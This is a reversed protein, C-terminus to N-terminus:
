MVSIGTPDIVKPPLRRGEWGIQLMRCGECRRLESQCQTALCKVRQGQLMFTIRELKQSSRGKILICDGEGLDQPLLKLVNPLQDGVRLLCDSSKGVLKFGARYDRHHMGVIIAQDFIEAIRKGIRKYEAKVDSRLDSISGLILIKRSFNQGEFFDFAADITELTSKFEDSVVVAGSALRIPNLRLPSPSLRAMRSIVEKMDMSLAAAVACSALVCHIQHRGVLATDVLYESEKISLTFSCGKLGELVLNSAKIMASDSFGYSWKQASSESAAKAVWSNDANFVLIDNAGQVKLMESKERCIAAKNPFMLMHESHVSTFIVLNPQIAKAYRRMQGGAGIAVELVVFRRWPPTMLIHFAVSSFANGLQKYTSPQSLGLAAAICRMTTTKGLSGVVVVITTRRLFLSRYLQAIKLLLPYTVASVWEFLYLRGM